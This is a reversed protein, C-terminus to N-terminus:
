ENEGKNRIIVKKIAKLYSNRYRKDPELYAGEGWENWATLFIYEKNNKKAIRYLQTFYRYFKKPSAHYTILAKRGKRPSVDFDVYGGPYINEKLKREIIERWISDYSIFQPIDIDKKGLFERISKLMIETTTLGYNGQQRTYSPEYLLGADVLKEERISCNTGIIYIGPLGNKRALENWYKIMEKLRPIEGPKYLIFVPKGDKKIYRKEQFFPLLYMFHSEWEKEDGYEQKLLMGRETGNGGAKKSEAWANGKIKSWSTIWSENAWSFCYNINIDKWKLLNEAPKELIQKDEGFWYHYICFGYVGYKHALKAQWQMTSKELLDYYNGHLPLRPQYHGPYLPRAKKASVWDTFGEGWWEDNEPVRHFQPLYFAMIKPNMGEGKEYISSPRIEM